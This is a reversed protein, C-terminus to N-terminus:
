VDEAPEIAELVKKAPKLWSFINVNTRSMEAVKEVTLKGKTNFQFKQATKEGAKEHEDVM